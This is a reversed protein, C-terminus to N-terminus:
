IYLIYYRRCRETSSQICQSKCQISYWYLNKSIWIKKEDLWIDIHEAKSNVDGRVLDFNDVLLESLFMKAFDLFEM